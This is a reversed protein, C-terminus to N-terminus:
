RSVSSESTSDVISWSSGNTSRAFGYAYDVAELGPEGVAHRRDTAARAQADLAVRRETRVHHAGAVHPDGAAHAADGVARVELAVDSASRELLVAGGHERQDRRERRHSTGTPRGEAEDQGGVDHRATSRGPKSLEAISPYATRAASSTPAPGSAGTTRGTSPSTAAPSM